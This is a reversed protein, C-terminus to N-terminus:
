ALAMAESVVVGCLGSAASATDLIQGSLGVPPEM